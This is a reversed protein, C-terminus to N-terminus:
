RMPGVRRAPKGRSRRAHAEGSAIGRPSNSTPTAVRQIKELVPFQQIDAALAEAIIEALEEEILAIAPPVGPPSGGSAMFEGPKSTADHGSEM